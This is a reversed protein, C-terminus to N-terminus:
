PLRLALLSISTQFIPPQQLNRTPTLPTAVPLARVISLLQRKRKRKYTTFTIHAYWLTIILLPIVRRPHNIPSKLGEFMHERYLNSLLSTFM